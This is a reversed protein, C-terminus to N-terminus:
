FLYIYFFIGEYIDTLKCIEIFTEGNAWDFVVEMLDPKFIEVYENKVLNIKCEILIDAVKGANEKIKEFLLNLVPNKPPKLEAKSNENVLFCSLMAALTPPDIENFSGNYLMETLLIEDSSSILCAVQGKQNVNNEKNIFELRRLVKKM